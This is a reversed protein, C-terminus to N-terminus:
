GNSGVGEVPLGTGIGNIKINDVQWHNLFNEKRTSICASARTDICICEYDLSFHITNDQGPMSLSYLYGQLQLNDKETRDWKLAQIIAHHQEGNNEM